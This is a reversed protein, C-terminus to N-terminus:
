YQSLKTIYKADIRKEHTNKSESVTGQVTIHYGEANQVMNVQEDTTLICKVEGHGFAYNKIYMCYTINDGNRLQEIKNILGSVQVNDGVNVSSSFDYISVEKATYIDEINMSYGSFEDIDTVIGKITIPDGDNKDMIADIQSANTFYCVIYDWSDEDPKVRVFDGIANSGSGSILGHIVFRENLYTRTAKLTNGQLDNLLTKISVEQYFLNQSLEAETATTELSKPVESNEYYGGDAETNNECSSFVCLALISVILILFKKMKQSEKTEVFYKM